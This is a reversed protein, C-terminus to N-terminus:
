SNKLDDKQNQLLTVIDMQIITSQEVSFQQFKEFPSAIKRREQSSTQLWSVSMLASITTVYLFVNRTDFCITLFIWILDVVSHTVPQRM